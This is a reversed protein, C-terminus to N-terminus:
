DALECGSFRDLFEEIAEMFQEFGPSGPVPVHNDGDLIRLECNKLLAALEIARDVSITRDGKSHLLMVPCAVRPLLDRIDLNAQLDLNAIQAAAHVAATQIDEMERAFEPPADPIM